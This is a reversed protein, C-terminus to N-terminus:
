KFLTTWPLVTGVPLGDKRSGDANLGDAWMNPNVSEDEADFNARTERWSAWFRKPSALFSFLIFPWNALTEGM